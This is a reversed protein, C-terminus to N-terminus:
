PGVFGTCIHPLSVQSRGASAPQRFPGSSSPLLLRQELAPIKGAKAQEQLMPAEQFAAAGGAGAMLGAAVLSGLPVRRWARASRARPPTQAMTAITM